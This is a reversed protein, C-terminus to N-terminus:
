KIIREGNTKRRKNEISMTIEKRTTITDFNYLSISSEVIANKNRVCVQAGQLNFFINNSDHKFRLNDLIPFNIKSSVDFTKFIVWYEKPDIISFFFCAFEPTNVNVGSVRMKEFIKLEKYLEHLKELGARSDLNLYNERNLQISARIVKHIAEPEKYRYKAWIEAQDPDDRFFYTGYGLWHDRREKSVIFEYSDVISEACLSNTGHYAEFQIINILGM